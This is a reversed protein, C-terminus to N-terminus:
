ISSGALISPITTILTNTRRSERTVSALSFTPIRVIINGIPRNKLSLGRLKVDIQIEVSTLCSFAKPTFHM